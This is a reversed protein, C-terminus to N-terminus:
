GLEVPLRKGLVMDDPRVRSAHALIEVGAAAADRLARSYAPDVDEAPHGFADHPPGGAPDLRNYHTLYDIAHRGGHKIDSELTLTIVTGDTPLDTLIARYSISHGEFYHATQPGSNGNVWHAPDNPADASGNRCQM